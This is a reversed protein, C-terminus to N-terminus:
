SRVEDVAPGDVQVVASMRGERIEAGAVEDEVSHGHRHAMELMLVEGRTDQDRIEINMLAVPRGGVEAAIGQHKGARQM